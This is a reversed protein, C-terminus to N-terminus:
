FVPPILPPLFTIGRKLAAAEILWKGERQIAKRGDMQGRGDEIAGCDQLTNTRARRGRHSLSATWARASRSAPAVGHWKTDPSGPLSFRFAFNTRATPVFPEFARLRRGKETRSSGLLFVSIWIFRCSSHTGITTQSHAPQAVPGTDSVCASTDFITRSRDDFM